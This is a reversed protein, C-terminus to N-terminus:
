KIDRYIENPYLFITYQKKHEITNKRHLIADEFQIIFVGNSMTGFGAIPINDELITKYLAILANKAAPDINM